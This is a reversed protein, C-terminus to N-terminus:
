GATAEVRRRVNRHGRWSPALSDTNKSVTGAQTFESDGHKGYRSYIHFPDVEGLGM